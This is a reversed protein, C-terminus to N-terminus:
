MPRRPNQPPREVLIDGLVLADMDTSRFTRIADDPTEVIPEGADNFSTNLLVPVGSLSEFAYLLDHLLPNDERTTTQIRATGDVHVVAPIASRAPERVRAVVTMSPCPEAVHFLRQAENWPVVPAFPRFAERHKVKANIRDRMRATRPDALISRNGLARPGWESRGQFWGTVAGSALLRATEGVVDDMLRYSLGGNRRRLADLCDDRSYDGGLYVGAGVLRIPDRRGLVEHWGYAVNGLSQGQDGSNPQVYLRDLPIEDLLRRNAVCNLAVGGALCLARVGTKAVWHRVKHLLGEELQRQAAAALDFWIDGLPVTAANREPPLDHGHRAFHRRLAESSNLYDNEIPCRLRGATLCEVLPVDAFREPDGFSALAMTKGAHLYTRFGVFRTVNGYMEGLSVVDEDEMDRELLDVRNGRGLYLTLREMPNKWLEPYRRPGLINGENDAVLVLAEDVGSPCFASYAHALHHSPIM